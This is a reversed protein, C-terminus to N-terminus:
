FVVCSLFQFQLWPQLYVPASALLDSAQWVVPGVVVVPGAVNVPEGAGVLLGAAVSQEKQTGDQQKQEQLVALWVREPPVDLGVVHTVHALAAFVLLVAAGHDSGDEGASHLIDPLVALLLDPCVVAVPCHFCVVKDLSDIWTVPVICCHDRWLDIQIDDSDFFRRDPRCAQRRRIDPACVQLGLRIGPDCIQLGLRVLLALFQLVLLVSFQRILPMVFLLDM